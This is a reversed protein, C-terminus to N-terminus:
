RRQKARCQGTRGARDQVRGPGAKGPGAQGAANNAPLFPLFLVREPM